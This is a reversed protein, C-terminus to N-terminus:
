EKRCGDACRPGPLGARLSSNPVATRWNPSCRRRVPPVALVSDPSTAPPTPYATASNNTSAPRRMWVQRPEEASTCTARWSNTSMGSTRAVGGRVPEGDSRLRAESAVAAPEGSSAPDRVPTLADACRGWRNSLHQSRRRLPESASRSRSGPRDADRAAAPSRRIAWISSARPLEAPNPPRTAWYASCTPSQTACRSCPPSSM